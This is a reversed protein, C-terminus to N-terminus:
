VSKGRAYPRGQVSLHKSVMSERTCVKFKWLKLIGFKQFQSHKKLMELLNNDDWIKVMLKNKNNSHKSLRKYFNWKKIVFSRM